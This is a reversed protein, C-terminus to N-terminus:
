LVYWYWWTSELFPVLNTFSVNSPGGSVNPFPTTTILGNAIDIEGAPGNPNNTLLVSSFGPSYFTVFFSTEILNGNPSNVAPGSLDVIFTVSSGFTLDQAFENDAATNALTVTGPLLGSVSGTPSEEAGLSGGVMSFSQVQATAAQPTGPGPNFQFDIIGPQGSVSSTDVTIRYLADARAPTMAGAALILLSVAIGKAAPAFFRKM